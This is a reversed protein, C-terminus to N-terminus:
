FVFRFLILVLLLLVEVVLCFVGFAQLVVRCFWKWLLLLGFQLFKFSSVVRM